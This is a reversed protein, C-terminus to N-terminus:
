RHFYVVVSGGTIWELQQQSNAVEFEVFLNSNSELQFDKWPVEFEFVGSDETRGHFSGLALPTEAIADCRVRARGTSKLVNAKSGLLYLRVPKSTKEDVSLTSPVLVPKPKHKITLAITMLRGEAQINVMLERTSLLQTPKYEPSMALQFRIKSTEKEIASIVFRDDGISVLANKLNIRNQLCNIEIIQLDAAANLDFTKPIVEFIPKIEGRLSVDRSHGDEHVFTIKSHFPGPTNRKVEFLLERLVRDEKKSPGSLKASVCSCSPKISEIPSSAIDNSLLVICTMLESVFFDGIEISKDQGLLVTGFVTGQTGSREM